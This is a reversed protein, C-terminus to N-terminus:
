PPPGQSGGFLHTKCKRCIKAWFNGRIASKPRKRQGLMKLWGSIGAPNRRSVGFCHGCVARIKAPDGRPPRFLRRRTRSRLGRRSAACERRQVRRPAHVAPRHLEELLVVGPVRPRRRSRQGGLPCDTSKRPCISVVNTRPPQRTPNPAVPQEPGLGRFDTM